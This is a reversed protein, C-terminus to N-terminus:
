RNPYTETPKDNVFEGEYLLKGAADYCKGVGNKQNNFWQGVYKNCNPCHNIEYDKDVTYTGQGDQNDNKWEGEYKDGDAWSMIGQGHRNDNKWFGVYKDGSKWTYTGKGSMKDNRWEGEYKDGDTWTKEGYGEKVGNKWEGVYKYHNTVTITGKGNPINNAFYGVYKAGNAFTFTGYGNKKGNKWHGVYKNGNKYIATGKGHPASYQISGVYDFEAGYEDTLGYLNEKFEKPKKINILTEKNVKIEVQQEWIDGENQLKLTHSGVKLNQLKNNTSNEDINGMYKDDIYIKGKRESNIILNGYLETKTELNQTGANKTEVTKADTKVLYYKGTLMNWIQPKQKKNSTSIVEERTNQFVDILRQPKKMQEVLKATFVGNQEYSDDALEGESTAFAIITGKAQNKIARFGRTKGRTFTRFQNERCADLILINLKKSNNQFAKNVTTIDFVESEANLVQELKADTPILYNVGNIQVGHGSYYFLSVDSNKIKSIFSNAADQMQQLNINKLLKVDFGLGTLTKAMLDADNVSNKLAPAHEYIDNGIVLATKKQQSVLTISIQFFLLFFLLQKM